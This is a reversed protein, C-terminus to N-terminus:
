VKGGLSHIKEAYKIAAQRSEKGENLEVGTIFLCEPTELKDLEDYFIHIDSANLRVSVWRKEGDSEVLGVLLGTQYEDARTVAFVPMGEETLYSYIMDGFIDNGLKTVPVSNLQMKSLAVCTNLMSGGIGMDAKDSFCCGGKVPISDILIPMDVNCDGFCYIKADVNSM